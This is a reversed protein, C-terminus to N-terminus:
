VTSTIFLIIDDVFIPFTPSITLVSIKRSQFKFELHWKKFFSLSELKKMGKKIEEASDKM